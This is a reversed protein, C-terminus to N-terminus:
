ILSASVQHSDAQVAERATSVRYFISFLVPPPAADEGGMELEYFKFTYHDPNGTDMM